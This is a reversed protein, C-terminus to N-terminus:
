PQLIAEKEGDISIVVEKIGEFQKLTEIIQSRIAIVRCSGGVGQQLAQNFDVTLVGDLLEIKQVKVAEPLNNVFGEKMEAETLGAVLQRLAGAVPQEDYQIERSLSFVKACDVVGPDEKINSFFLKVERNRYDAFNVPLRIVNQSPTGDTTAEFVELRGFPSRPASFALDASFLNFGSLGDDVSVTTTAMVQEFADVLRLEVKGSSVSARGKVVVPSTIDDNSLPQNIIINSDLVAVEGAQVNTNVNIDSGIGPRKLQKLCGGLLVLSALALSFFILQRRNTMFKM